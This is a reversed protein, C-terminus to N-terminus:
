KECADEEEKEQNEAGGTDGDEPRLELSECCLCGERVRSESPEPETEPSRALHRLGSQEGATGM